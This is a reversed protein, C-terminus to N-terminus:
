EEMMIDPHMLCWERYEENWIDMPTAVIPYGNKDLRAQAKKKTCKCPGHTKYWCGQAFTCKPARDPDCIYYVVEKPKKRFLRKFVQSIKRM